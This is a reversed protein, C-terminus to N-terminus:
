GAPCGAILLLVLSLNEGPGLICHLPMNKLMNCLTKVRIRPQMEQFDPLKHFNDLFLVIEREPYKHKYYKILTKTYEISQGDSSDKVILRDDKFLNILRQYGQERVEPVFEFGPQRSWYKPNSVHNLKLQLDETSNCVWKYIPYESADDISHYICMANNRNDSAIEYAMQCCFSTKGAQESGGIFVLNNKKWDGNLRAAIGGLGHPKM